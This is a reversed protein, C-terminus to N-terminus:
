ARVDTKFVNYFVGSLFGLSAGIGIFIGAPRKHKQVFKYGLKLDAALKDVYQDVEVIINKFNIGEEDGLNKAIKELNEKNFRTKDENKVLKIFAERAPSKIKSKEFKDVHLENSKSRAARTIDSDEFVKEIEALPIAYKGIYGAAAGIATANVVNPLYSRNYNHNGYSQVADVTM